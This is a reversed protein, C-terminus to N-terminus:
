ALIPSCTPRLATNWSMAERALLEVTATGGAANHRILLRATRAGAATPIFRIGMTCDSGSAVFGPVGCSGPIVRFDGAAPGTLTVESLVLRAQGANTVKLDVIESREGVALENFRLTRASLRIEPAPPPLATGRLPVRLPADPADSDIVLEGTRNGAVTPAFRVTLACRGAM